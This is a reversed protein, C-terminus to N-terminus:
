PADGGTSPLLLEIHDDARGITAEGCECDGLEALADARRIILNRFFMLSPYPEFLRREGLMWLLSLGIERHKDCRSLRFLVADHEDVLEDPNLENLVDRITEQTAALFLDLFGLREDEPLHDLIIGLVDFSEAMMNNLFNARYDWWGGRTRWTAALRKADIDVTPIGGPEIPKEDPGYPQASEPVTAKAAVPGAVGVSLVAAGGALAARRNIGVSQPTLKTNATQM